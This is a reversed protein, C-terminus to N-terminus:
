DDQRRGRAVRHLHRGSRASGPTVRRRTWRRRWRRRIRRRRRWLPNASGNGPKLSRFRDTPRAVLRVVVDAAVVRAQEVAPRAVAAAGGRGRGCRGEARSRVRVRFDWCATQIGPELRNGALPLERIMKGAADAITLKADKATNKLYYQIVAESPPNEGMFYQHGWFEDNKDDFSKWELAPDISFLKAGSASAQAAKYEQIPALHDLIWIARGHTALLMANDRPHLTIEDTRVDPYNSTIRQWATGRDLSVFLGTETGVYLVDPNRQDETITKVAEGQMSAKISKFTAGYDTSAWIHTEYDGLRHADSAIYVTGADYRSPQVKSTWAGKVFGPLRNAVAKDWTKGADKSMSVTGDDTGAYYVGPMKQSEAFTVITPWAAIGDDKSIRIDSGKMAMTVVQNRDANTTLDPSIATWSDGRDTSRFVRNGAIYLVGPDTPSFMM